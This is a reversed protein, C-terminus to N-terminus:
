PKLGLENSLLSHPLSDGENLVNFFAASQPSIKTKITILAFLIQTTSIIFNSNPM